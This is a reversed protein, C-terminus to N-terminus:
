INAVKGVGKEFWLNWFTPLFICFIPLHIHMQDSVKLWEEFNWDKESSILVKGLFQGIIWVHM